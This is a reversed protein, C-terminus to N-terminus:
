FAFARSMVITVNKIVRYM